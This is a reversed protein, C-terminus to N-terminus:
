LCPLGGGLDFREANFVSAKSSKTIHCSQRELKDEGDGVAVGACWPTGGALRKFCLKGLLSNTSLANTTSLTPSQYFQAAAEARDRTSLPASGSGTFGSLRKAWLVKGTALVQALLTGNLFEHTISLSAPRM